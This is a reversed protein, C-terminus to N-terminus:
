ENLLRPEDVNQAAPLLNSQTAEALPSRKKVEELFRPLERIVPHVAYWTLQSQQLPATEDGNVYALVLQQELIHKSEPLSIDFNHFESLQTDVLIPLWTEKLASNYQDSLDAVSYMVDVETIPLKDVRTCISRILRMFARLNGGSYHLLKYFAAPEFISELTISALSGKLRARMLNAIDINGKEYPTVGDRETVKIMPLIVPSNDYKEALKPSHSLALPLPVTLVFHTNLKTFLGAREIFLEFHSAFGTEKNEFKQIKEFDDLIFLIEEYGLKRLENMAKVLLLNIQNVIVTTEDSSKQRLRNLVENDITEFNLKGKMGWLNIESVELPATFLNFMEKWKKELYNDKLRINTRQEIQQTFEAIISWLIDWAHCDYINLYDSARFFVVFYRQKGNATQLKDVEGKLSYLESSKGCGIHGSFLGRFYGTDTYTLGKITKAILGRSGRSKSCDFYIASDEAPQVPNCVRYLTQLISADDPM